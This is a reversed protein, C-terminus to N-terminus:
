ELILLLISRYISQLIIIFNSVTAYSQISLFSDQYDIGLCEWKPAKNNSEQPIEAVKQQIPQLQFCTSQHPKIPCLKGELGNPVQLSLFPSPSSTRHTIIADVPSGVKCDLLICRMFLDRSGYM